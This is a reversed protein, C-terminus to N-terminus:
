CAVDKMLVPNSAESPPGIGAKNEASVRFEYTNGEQLGTVKCRLDSVPMKTARVWRLSKKERREIHYGTIESGGDDVPRKWSVTATNKTVNSVEPKGPPGPPGSFSAYKHSIWAKMFPAAFTLTDAGEHARCVSDTWWKSLNRSYLNEKGM